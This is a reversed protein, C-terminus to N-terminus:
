KSYQKESDIQRKLGAVTAAQGAVQEELATNINDLTAHIESLM